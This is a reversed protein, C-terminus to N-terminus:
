EPLHTVSVKTLFGDFYCDAFVKATVETRSQVGLKRRIARVHDHATHPSIALERAIEGDSLGRCILRTVEAERATLGTGAVLAGFLDRPGAPSLTIAIRDGQLRGGHANMWRGDPTSVLTSFSAHKEALARLHDLQRYHDDDAGTFEGLLSPDGMSEVCGKADLVLVGHGVRGANKGAFSRVVADRLAAGITASLDNLLTTESATFHPSSDRRWLSLCGWVSGLDSCVVRLEDSYGHPELVKVYLPDEARLRSASLAEAGSGALALRRFTHSSESRVEVGFFPHCSAAPLDAVAGGTFLMTTPDTLVLAGGDTPLLARVAHLVAAAAQSPSGRCVSAQVARGFATDQTAPLTRM